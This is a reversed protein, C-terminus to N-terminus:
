AEGDPHELQHATSASFCDGGAPNAPQKGLAGDGFCPVQQSPRNSPLDRTFRLLPLRQLGVCGARTKTPLASAEREEDTLRVVYRKRM